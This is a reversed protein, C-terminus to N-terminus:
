SKGRQEKSRREIEKNSIPPTKLARRILDDFRRQDGEASQNAMVSFMGSIDLSGFEM